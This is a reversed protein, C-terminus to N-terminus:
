ARVLRICTTSASAHAFLNFSEVNLRRWKALLEDWTRRAPHGVVAAPAYGIRYGAVRARECWETDESVGVRFGGVADFLAREVALPDRPDPRLYGDRRDHAPFWPQGGTLDLVLDAELTAEAQAPGFRLGTLTLSGDTGPAAAADLRAGAAAAAQQWDQWLEAPTIQAGAPLAATAAICLLAAALPNPM